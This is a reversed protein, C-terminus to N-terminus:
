PRSVVMKRSVQRLGDRLTYFYIGPSLQTGDFNITNEGTRIDIIERHHQKGLLDSVMFEFQGSVDSDVIIQTFGSFPNPYNELRVQKLLENTSSPTSCNASGEENVELIYTGPFFAPDPFTVEFSIGSFFVVGEIELENGGVDMPDNPTGSIVVCGMSDRKVICNPPNCSYDLGDPLNGIANEVPLAVSDIVIEGIGPFNLEGPINLTFVLEYPTNLCATDQIGTGAVTDVFPLPFIGFVSDPITPDPECDQAQLQQAAAIGFVLGALLLLRKM